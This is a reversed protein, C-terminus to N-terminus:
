GIKGLKLAKDFLAFNAFWYDSYILYSEIHIFSIYFLSLIQKCVKAINLKEEAVYGSVDIM